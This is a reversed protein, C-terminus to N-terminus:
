AIESHGIFAANIVAGASASMMITAPMAMAMRAQGALMDVAIGLAPLAPLAVVKTITITSGSVPTITATVTTAATPNTTFFFPLQDPVLVMNSRGGLDTVPADQTSLGYAGKAVAGVVRFTREVYSSNYQLKLVATQAATATAQAADAATRAAASNTADTDAKASASSATVQAADAATKAAAAAATVTSLTAEDSVLRNQLATVNGAATTATQQAADAATKATVVAQQTQALAAEDATARNQLATIATAAVSNAAQTNAATAQALAAASTNATIRAEDLLLQAATAAQSTQTADAELKLLAQQQEVLALRVGEAQQQTTLVTAALETVTVRLALAVDGLRNLELASVQLDLRAEDAQQTKLVAAINSLALQSQALGLQATPSLDAVENSITVIADQVSQIAAQLHTLGSQFQQVFTQADALTLTVVGNGTLQQKVLDIDEFTPLSNAM